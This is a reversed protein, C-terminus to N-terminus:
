ASPLTVSIRILWKAMSPSLLSRSLDRYFGNSCYIRVFTVHRKTSCDFLGDQDLGIEAGTRDGSEIEEVHAALTTVIQQDATTIAADFDKAQRIAAAIISTSATVTVSGVANGHLFYPQQVTLVKLLADGANLATADTRIAVSLHQDARVRTADETQGRM